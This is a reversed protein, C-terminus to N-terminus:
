GSRRGGRLSGLRRVRTADTSRSVRVSRGSIWGCDITALRREAYVACETVARIGPAAFASRVQDAGFQNQVIPTSFQDPFDHMVTADVFAHWLEVQGIGGNRIDRRVNM